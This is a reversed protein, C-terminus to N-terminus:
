QAELETAIAALQRRDHTLHHAATYLAAAAIPAIVRSFQERSAGMGALRHHAISIAKDLVAQAVPSLPRPLQSQSM